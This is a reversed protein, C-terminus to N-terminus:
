PAATRSPEGPRRSRFSGDDEVDPIEAEDGLHHSRPLLAWRGLPHDAPSALQARSPATSGGTTAQNLAPEERVGRSRLREIREQKASAVRNRLADADRFGPGSGGEARAFPTPEAGHVERLAPGFGPVIERTQEEGRKSHLRESAESPFRSSSATTRRPLAACTRRTRASTPKVAGPRNRGSALLSKRSERRWCFM